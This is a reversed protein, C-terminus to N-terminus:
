PSRGVAIVAENGQDGDDQSLGGFSATIATPVRHQSKASASVAAEALGRGAPTLTWFGRQTRADRRTVHILGLDSAEGMARLTLAHALGFTKAFSASDGALGLHAAALIAAPLPGSWAPPRHVLADVIALFLVETQAEDANM